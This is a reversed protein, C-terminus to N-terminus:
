LQLLTDVAMGEVAVTMYKVHCTMVCWLINKDACFFLYSFSSFIFCSNHLLLALYKSCLCCVELEFFM